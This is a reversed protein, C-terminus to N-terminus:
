NDERSSFYSNFQTNLIITCKNVDINYINPKHQVTPSFIIAVMLIYFYNKNGKLFPLKELITSQIM